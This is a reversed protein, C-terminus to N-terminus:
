KKRSALEHPLVTGAGRDRNISRGFGVGRSSMVGHLCHRCTFVKWVQATPQILAEM